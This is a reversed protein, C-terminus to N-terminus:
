FDIERQLYSVPHRTTKTQGSTGSSSFSIYENSLKKAEFILDIWEEVKTSSLLYPPNATEFINFFSNVHAALMM